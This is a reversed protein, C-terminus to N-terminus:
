FIELGFVDLLGIFRRRFYFTDLIEAAQKLACLSDCPGPERTNM